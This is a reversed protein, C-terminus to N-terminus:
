KTVGLMKLGSTIEERISLQIQNIKETHILCKYSDALHKLLAPDVYELRNHISCQISALSYDKVFKVVESDPGLSIGANSFTNGSISQFGNPNILTLTGNSITAKDLSPSPFGNVIEIANEWNIENLNQSNSGMRVVEQGAPNIIILVSDKEVNLDGFKRPPIDVMRINYGKFDIDINNITFGKLPINTVDLIKKGTKDTVIISTGVTTIDWMTETGRWENDIIQCSNKSDSTTFSLLFPGGEEQPPKISLIPVGDISIINVPNNFKTSGIQIVPDKDQFEIPGFSHQGNKCYPNKAANIVTEKSLTGRTKRDHHEACLLTIGSAEHTKANEFEPDYHDYHYFAKGCICCGFGCAQRVERKVQEPIPRALGHANTKKETKKESMTVIKFNFRNVM